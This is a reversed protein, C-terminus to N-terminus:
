PRWVHINQIRNQKQTVVTLMGGREGNFRCDAREGNFRCDSVLDKASKILLRLETYKGSWYKDKIKISIHASIPVFVSPTYTPM